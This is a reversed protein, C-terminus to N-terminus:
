LGPVTAIESPTQGLFRKLSRSMHAQDAYGTQYAVAIAPTGQQLLGAAQRARQIQRFVTHTMGTTHVFHRQLSRLTYAPHHDLLLAEVVNDQALHGKRVLTSVFAEANEFTPLEFVDSVLHFRTRNNALVIARDLLTTSPIFSLFTSPKFTITLVEDGPVFHLPVAHTTQGTLLVTQRTDQTLVVLDWCGDPTAVGRDNTGIVWHTVAQVFPSDAARTTLQPEM